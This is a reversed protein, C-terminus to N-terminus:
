RFHMLWPLTREEKTESDTLWSNPTAVGDEDVKWEGRRVCDAWEELTEVLRVARAVGWPRRTTFSWPNAVGPDTVLLTGDAFQHGQLPDTYLGPRRCITFKGMGWDRDFTLNEPMASPVAESASPLILCSFMDSGEPASANYRRRASSADEANMLAAFTEPTFTTLGPAVFKFHPRPARSLFAKGFSSIEYQELLDISLPQESLTAPQFSGPQKRESIAELLDDWAGLADELDQAVWPVFGITGERWRFKGLDWMELMKTLVVELPIWSTSDSPPLKSVGLQWATAYFSNLELYLGGDMLADSLNDPYLLIIERGEMDGYSSGRLSMSLPDPQRFEATLPLCDPKFSDLQSFFRYIKRRESPISAEETTRRGHDVHDINEDDGGSDDGSEESERDTDLIWSADDTPIQERMRPIVDRRIDHDGPNFTSQAIARQLIKNHLAACREPNFIGDEM